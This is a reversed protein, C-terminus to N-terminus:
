EWIRGCNCRDCVPIKENAMLHERFRKIKEGGWIDELTEEHLNGLIYDPYDPCVSVDGNPLITLCEWPLRCTGCRVTEQSDGFYGDLELPPVRVNPYKAKVRGLQVALTEIDVREYGRRLFGDHWIPVVGFADGM